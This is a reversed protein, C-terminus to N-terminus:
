ASRGPSLSLYLDHTKCAAAQSSCRSEALSRAQRGQRQRADDDQLLHVIREAFAQVDGAPVRYGSMSDEVLHETGGIDSVVSPLGTAMAEALAVPSAEVLSPFFFVQSSRYAEQLGDHGLHGLFRVYDEAGSEAVYQRVQEGYEAYAPSFGGAVHLEAHAVQQRVIAMAKIADLTGKRKQVSGVMLVRGPVPALQLRFFADHVPNDINHLRARTHPAIVEGVFPSIVVIDTARRLCSREAYDWVAVRLNGKLSGGRRDVEAELVNIGHVTVVTPLKTDFAAFPYAAAQGHAHILDPALGEIYRRVTRRDVTLMSLTHPIRPSSPLYHVVWQQEDVVQARDLPRSRWKECTVVHLDLDEYRGLSQLTNYIVAQIGGVLDPPNEPYDGAIVVRM